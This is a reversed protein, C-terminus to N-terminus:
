RRGAARRAAAIRTSGSGSPAPHAAGGPRLLGAMEEASPVRPCHIDWVGPGIENPYDFGAFAELLEMDSRATEISIVDADMAAISEIIDNFESYCMHTHIQTEDRM